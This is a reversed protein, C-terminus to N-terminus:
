LRVHDSGIVLGVSGRWGEGAAAAGGDDDGASGGRCGMRKLVYGVWDEGGTTPAAAQM